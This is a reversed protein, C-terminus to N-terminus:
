VKSAAGSCLKGVLTSNFISILLNGLLNKQLKQLFDVTLMGLLVRMNEKYYNNLIFFISHIKSELGQLAAGLDGELITDM